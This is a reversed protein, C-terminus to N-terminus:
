YQVHWVQSTRRKPIQRKSAPSDERALEEGELSEDTRRHAHRPFHILSLIIIVLLIMELRVSPVLHQLPLRWTLAPLSSTGVCNASWDRSFSLPDSIGAALSPRSVTKHPPTALTALQALYCAVVLTSSLGTREPLLTCTVRHIGCVWHSEINRPLRRVQGGTEAKQYPLPLPPSPVQHLTTSDM